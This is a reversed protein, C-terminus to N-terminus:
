CLTKHSCVRAETHPVPSQPLGASPRGGGKRQVIAYLARCTELPPTHAAKVREVEALLAQRTAADPPPDIQTWVEAMRRPLDADPLYRRLLSIIGSEKEAVRLTAGPAEQRRPLLPCMQQWLALLLLLAVAGVLLHLQYRHLLWAVNHHETLGHVTEDFIVARAGGILYALLRPPHREALAENSLFFSDSALIVRGKGFRTEILVPSGERAYLVQWRNTAEDTLEFVAPSLWPLVEGGGEPERPREGELAGASFPHAVFKVGGMLNVEKSAPRRAPTLPPAEDDMPAPSPDSPPAEDDEATEQQGDKEEEKTEQKEPGRGTFTCVIRGGEALFAGEESDRPIVDMGGGQPLGIRFLTMGAALTDKGYGRRVDLPTGSLAHYLLSTGMPSDNLTSYAPYTVGGAITGRALWVGGGILAAVALVLLLVGREAGGGKSLPCPPASMRTQPTQVGGESLPGQTPCQNNM